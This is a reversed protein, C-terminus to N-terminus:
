KKVQVEHSAYAHADNMRKTLSNGIWLLCLPCLCLSSFLLVALLVTKVDLITLNKKGLRKETDDDGYRLLKEVDLVSLVFFFGANMIEETLLAAVAKEKKANM